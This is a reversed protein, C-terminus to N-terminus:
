LQMLHQDTNLIREGVFTPLSNTILKSAPKM